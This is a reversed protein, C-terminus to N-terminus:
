LPLAASDEKRLPASWPMLIHVKLTLLSCLDAITVGNSELFRPLSHHTLAALHLLPDVTRALIFTNKSLVLRTGLIAEEGEGNEGCFM